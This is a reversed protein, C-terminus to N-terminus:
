KSDKIFDIMDQEIKLVFLRDKPSALAELLKEDPPLYFGEPPGVPQNGNPATPAQHPQNRQQVPYVMGGTGQGQFSNSVDPPRRQLQLRSTETRNIEQLQDQFARTDPDSPPKTAVAVSDSPSSVDEEAAAKMSASDDPRLSEKEDLALTTRSTVSKTDSNDKKAVSVFDPGSLLPANLTSSQMMESIQTINGNKEPLPSLGGQRQSVDNKAISPAVPKDLSSSVNNKNSEPPSQNKAISIAPKNAAAAVQVTHQHANDMTPHNHRHNGVQAFSKRSPITNSAPASSM